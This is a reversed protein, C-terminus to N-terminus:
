RTRAARGGLRTPPNPWFLADNIQGKGPHIVFYNSISYDAVPAILRQTQDQIPEFGPGLYWIAAGKVQPYAAYLWAAWAIDELAAEPEPVGREAWGWETILVTPREIGHRDCAEFLKQFRGVLWPYMRGIEATVFSYEHLAVAVQEPHEAAFRLFALMAPSEWHEPEPEGGSWGFAAYRFGDAVARRASELAFAALWESRNKDPENTTEIWVLGSDLEPPFAAKNLAWSIAAAQEPPLHYLPNDYERRADRYILVHPVGSAQGLLQAYYLPEANNASKLVIPAGAADLADMWAWLGEMNGGAGVHFGIKNFAIDLGDAQATNRAAAFDIPPAAFVPTPPPLPPPLPPPPLLVIPLHLTTTSPAPTPTPTPTATVTPTPTVTLTVTITPTVTATPTITVTPTLTATPTEELAFRPQPAIAPVADSGAEVASQFIFVATILLWSSMGLLWLRQRRQPTDPQRRNRM